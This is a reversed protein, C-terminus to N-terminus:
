INEDTVRWECKGCRFGASSFRVSRLIKKGRWNLYVFWEGCDIFWKFYFRWIHFGLIYLGWEHRELIHM